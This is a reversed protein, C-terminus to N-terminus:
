FRTEAPLQNAWADAGGPRSSTKVPVMDSAQKALLPLQVTVTLLLWIGYLLMAVVLLGPSVTRIWRLHLCSRETLMAVEQEHQVPAASPMAAGPGGGFVAERGDQPLSPDLARMCFSSIAPASSGSETLAPRLAGAADNITTDAEKAAAINVAAAAARAAARAAKRRPRDSIPTSPSEQRGEADTGGNDVVTVAAALQWELRVCRAQLDTCEKRLADCQSCGPQAQAERLLSQYKNQQRMGDTHRETHNSRDKSFLTAMKAKDAGNSDIIKAM